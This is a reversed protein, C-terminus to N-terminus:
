KEKEQELTDIFMNMIEIMKQRQRPTLEEKARMLVDIGEPFENEIDSLKSNPYSFKNKAKGLLYDISVDFLMSIKNLTEIDPERKGSEYMGITSTSVSLKEAVEKQTLNYDSRLTKLIRSFM